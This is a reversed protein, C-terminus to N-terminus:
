EFRRDNIKLTGCKPCAYVPIFIDPHHTPLGDEDIFGKHTLIAYEIFRSFDKERFHECERYQGNMLNRHELSCYNPSPCYNREFGECNGCIYESNIREREIFGCAGCKM